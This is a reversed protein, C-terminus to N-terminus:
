AASQTKVAGLFDRVQDRLQDAKTQLQKSSDSVITATEGTTQATTTVDGINTSVEQTVRSTETVNHAIEQTAARQQEVATAIQSSIGSLNNITESISSIATVAHNTEAQIESIQKDIEETAKSTQSALEKVESAVVAFGKGAEGARAAEITANLALLNTQEAIAQILSVVESIQKASSSLREVCQNSAEAEESAQIAIDNSTQVQRSVESVSAALEEAASAVAEVNNSAQESALAVQQCQESTSQASGTMTHSASNLKEASTSVLSLMATVDSDFTSCLGQVADGRNIAEQQAQQQQEAMTRRDRENEVFIQMAKAMHGIENDLEAGKVEITCDGSSLRKMNDILGAIPKSISRIILFSVVGAILLGLMTFIIQITAHRWFAAQLDDVYVGTGLMWGWPAFGEAWSLKAVPEDGAGPKAWVYAVEGGGSKAKEILERILYVGNADKVDMMQKGILTPKPYIINVGDYEYGFVYGSGGDYRIATIAAKARAQAQERTLKGSVEQSHYNEAVARASQTINKISALREEHMVLKMEYVNLASLAITFLLIVLTPIAIKSSLSMRSLFM